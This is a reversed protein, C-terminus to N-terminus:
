VVKASETHATIVQLGLHLARAIRCASAAGAVKHLAHERVWLPPVIGHLTVNLLVKLTFINCLLLGLGDQRGWLM